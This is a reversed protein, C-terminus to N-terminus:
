PREIGRFLATLDLAPVHTGSALRVYERALADKAAGLASSVYPLVTAYRELDGDSLVRGWIAEECANYAAQVEGLGYGGHFRSDAVQRAHDLLPALNQGALADVLRGYLLDLRDHAASDGAQVYRPVRAALAAEADAVVSHRRTALYVAADITDHLRDHTRTAPSGHTM